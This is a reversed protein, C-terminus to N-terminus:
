INLKDLLELAVDAARKRREDDPLNNAEQATIKIKQM